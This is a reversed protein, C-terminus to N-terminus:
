EDGKSAAATPPFQGPEQLARDALAIKYVNNDNHKRNSKRLVQAVIVYEADCYATQAHEPLCSCAETSSLQLIVGLTVLLAATMVHYPNMRTQLM